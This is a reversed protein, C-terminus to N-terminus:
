DDCLQATEEGMSVCVCATFCFVIQKAAMNIMVCSHWRWIYMYIYIYICVCVYIYMNICSQWRREGTSCLLTHLAKSGCKDGCLQATEEGISV